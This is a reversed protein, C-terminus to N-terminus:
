RFDAYPKLPEIPLPLNGQWPEFTHRLYLGGYGPAYDQAYQWSFSGGLVTHNTLRREVTGQLRISQGNSSGGTSQLNANPDFGPLQSVNVGSYLNNSDTQAHSWGFSGELWTSWNANRWGYSIPISFAYYQQPSYYGGQGLTYEGLDKDYGWYMLTLGTRLRTNAEEILRYYYGAMASHRNNDDVNKGEFRHYSLNAWFGHDGGEDVSLGLTVGNATVGGWRKGTIPDVSGAYSLLSNSMPRRSATIDWGLAGIDDGTYTVGGLWNSVEFGQPSHGFDFAWRDNEWGLAFGIGSDNESTLPCGQSVLACTGFTERHRGDGEDDFRGVDLTVYEARAFGKGQAIPLDMQVITTKADLDSTGKAADDNRFGYNQYVHLTPNQAQYLEDVDSRLSKALWDDQDNARSAETVAVNDRPEAQEPTILGAAAMGKAYADLAKQPQDPAFHRAADRYTLGDAQGGAVIQEFQATAKEREGLSAYLNALRRQAATQEATLSPPAEALVQRADEPRKQAILMEALGLRAEAHQPMAQLFQRYYQEARPFDNREASWEAVRRANEPDPDSLLLLEAALHRKAARLNDVQILLLRQRARLGLNRMDDTWAPEPIQRLTDIVETYRDSSELYLGHAYRATPNSGQRQLLSQFSADAEATKGLQHQLTALRYALWPDDPSYSRVQQLLAAAQARDNRQLAAEAARSLREVQMSRLTDGYTKRQSEPLSLIFAEAREPSSESYLKVLLRVPESAQPDMRRAQMLVQEAETSKNEAIALNGLGILANIDKPDLKRAQQFLQRSKQFEKRELANDAQTLLMWYRTAQQLDRWKTIWFTDQEKSAAVSFAAYAEDARGTQRLIALGLAGHLRADDPYKAIGRRLNTEAASLQNAELLQLGRQGAQWAPDNLLRQQHALQTKAQTTLPFTSPYRQVFDAWGRAAEASIPLTSLYDFETQASSEQANPNSSLQQLVKLAEPGRDEALLLKSLTQRLDTNGPYTRDLRQLQAIANPRQGSVNARIRWYELASPFDPPNGSVLNDYAQQADPYRGAMALLRIQQLAAQGESSYLRILSQGQQVLSADANVQRLRDQLMQARALDNKRVALRMGALLTQPDDPSIRELRGLAGSVLDDRYLSEASRVQNLLLQQQEQSDSTQAISSVLWLGGLGLGISWYKLGSYPM